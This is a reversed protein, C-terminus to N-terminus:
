NFSHYPLHWISNNTAALLIFIVMAMMIGIFFHFIFMYENWKYANVIAKHTPYLSRLIGYLAGVTIAISILLFIYQM